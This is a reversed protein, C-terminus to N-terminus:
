IKQFSFDKLEEIRDPIIVTTGNFKHYAGLNQKVTDPVVFEELFFFEYDPNNPYPKKSSLGKENGYGYVAKKGPVITKKYM